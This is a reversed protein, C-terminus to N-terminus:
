VPGQATARTYGEHKCEKYAFCNNFLMDTALVMSVGPISRTKVTVYKNDYQHYDRQFRGATGKPTLNM